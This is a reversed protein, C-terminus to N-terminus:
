QRLFPHPGPSPRTSALLVAALAVGAAIGLLADLWSRWALKFALTELAVTVVAGFVWRPARRRWAHAAMLVCWAAHGSVPFHVTGAPHLVVRAFLVLLGPIWAVAFVLGGRGGLLLEWALVFFPFSIPVDYLAQVPTAGKGLIWFAAMAATCPAALAAARLWAAGTM